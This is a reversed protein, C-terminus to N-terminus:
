SSVTEVSRDASTVPQPLSRWDGGSIGSGIAMLVEGLIIWARMALAAVTVVGSGMLPTLLLYYAGERVGIGSPTLISLFGIAYGIPYVAVLHPALTRQSELSFSQLAFTLAAFASGWTIWSVVAFLVLGLLNTSTLATPLTARGMKHLAWNIIDILWGPKSLFIFTPLLALGILLMAYDQVAGTLIGWNGTWFFYLAAMPGAALLIVALFLAISTMTAEPPIGWRQCYLAMSLPQWVNGPIYRVVGSLFWIRIAAGFPLRGGMLGILYRWISVEMSWSILMFFASLALWGVHLRWSYGRLVDWQEYLLFAIFLGALLLFIPQLWGSLRKWMIPLCYVTSPLCYVTSLLCYVTFRDLYVM